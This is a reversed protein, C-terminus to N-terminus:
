RGDTSDSSPFIRDLIVKAAERNDTMAQMEAETWRGVNPIPQVPIPPLGYERQYLLKREYDLLHILSPEFKAREPSWAIAVVAVVGGLVIQIVITIAVIQIIAAPECM